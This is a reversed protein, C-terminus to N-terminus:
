LIDTDTEPGEKACPYQSIMGIDAPREKKKEHERVGLGGFADPDMRQEKRSFWAKRSSKKEQAVHLSAAVADGRVFGRAHKM